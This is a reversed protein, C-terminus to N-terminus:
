SALQQNHPLYINYVFWIDSSIKLTLKQLYAEHLIQSRIIKIKSCSKVAIITGSYSTTAQNLFFSYKDDRMNNPLEHLNTEQFLCVDPNNIKLFQEMEIWKFRGRISKVNLSMISINNQM